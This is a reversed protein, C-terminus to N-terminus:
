IWWREPTAALEVLQSLEEASRAGNPFERVFGATRAMLSLRLSITKRAVNSILAAYRADRGEQKELMVFTRFSKCTAHNVKTLAVSATQIYVSPPATSLASSASGFGSASLAGASGGGFASHLTFPPSGPPVHGCAIAAEKNAEAVAERSSVVARLLSIEHNASQLNKDKEQSVRLNHAERESERNLRTRIDAGDSLLQTMAPVSVGPIARMADFAAMDIEGAGSSFRSLQALLEDRLRQESGPDYFYEASGTDSTKEPVDM